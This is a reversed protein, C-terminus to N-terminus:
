LNLEEALDKLSIFKFNEKNIKEIGSNNGDQVVILGKPFDENFYNNSIDIGDTDSVGDILKNSVIKFSTVFAYPLERNYVNFTSNGQSSAILYGSIESTKYLALGEPDGVIHGNRDDIIIPKSFNLEQSIKYARLVGRKNEESVFLTRNQDDYVCGESESANQNNFVKLIGLKNDKYQWMQIRSGKAETVFAIIGFQDDFGACIGYALMNTQESHDPTIPLSFNGNLSEKNLNKNDQIWLNINNNGSNSGFIYTTNNNNTTNKTTRLDINNIKGAKSFGITEGALNYTYIGNYKDTGFILSLNPNLKSMWIAPDDANGNIPVQPTEKIPTITILQNALVPYICCVITLLLFYKKLFM